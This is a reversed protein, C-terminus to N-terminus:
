LCFCGLDKIQRPGFIIRAQCLWKIIPNDCALNTHALKKNNVNRKIFEYVKKIIEVSCEQLLPLFLTVM